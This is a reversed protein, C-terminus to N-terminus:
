SSGTRKQEQRSLDELGHAAGIAARRPGGGPEALGNAPTFPARAVIWRGIRAYDPLRRNVAAVAEAVAANEDAPVVVAINTEAGEGFVAAQRIAPHATLESEVWAPSVNRGFGTIFIDKKRGEIRLYGDGDMRGLDGTAFPADDASREDGLYGAFGSGSILIEGDGAVAIRLHPLARGVSGPRNDGPANVAVVSACESLGYGQFVPLGLGEAEALLAPSVPAGGVALFRLYGPAATGRALVSVMAKLTGPLLIATNAEHDKLARVMREPDLDSSGLLGVRALGPLAIRAGVLLPAYVGAINELLTALPLLALHRDEASAGTVAILSRAVRAMADATLCVGKPAGTTGSTFTVKAIGPAVRPAAEPLTQMWIPTEAIMAAATEDEMPRDRLILRAGTARVVHDVQEPTFFLPVPVCPIGAALAALDLVAWAPGNDLALAIPGPTMRRLRASWAEVLDALAACTLRARDGIVLIREPTRAAHRRLARLIGPEGASPGADIRHLFMM